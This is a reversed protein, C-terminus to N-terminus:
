GNVREKGKGMGNGKRDMRGMGTGTWNDGCQTDEEDEGNDHGNGHSLFSRVSSWGGPLPWNEPDDNKDIIGDWNLRGVALIDGLEYQRCSPPEIIVRLHYSGNRSL